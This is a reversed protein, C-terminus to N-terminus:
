ALNSEFDVFIIQNQLFEIPNRDKQFFGRKRKFSPETSSHQAASAPAKGKNTTAGTATAPNNTAGTLTAPAPPATPNQM